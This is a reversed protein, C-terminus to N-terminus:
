LFWFEKKEFIDVGNRVKRIGNKMIFTLNQCNIDESNEFGGRLATFKKEEAQILINFSSYSGSGELHIREM